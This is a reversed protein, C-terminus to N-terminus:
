QIVEFEKPGALRLGEWYSGEERRVRKISRDKLMSAFAQPSMAKRGNRLNWANWSEWLESSRSWESPSVAPGCCEAQWQALLDEHEVYEETESTVVSARVLGDRYWDGAARIIRALIGPYEGALKKLLDKDMKEPRHSFPLIQVRRSVGTDIGSFIPRNNAAMFFKAQPIFNFDSEYMYRANQQDGGTLSKLTAEDWRKGKEIESVSVMRKGVMAAIEQTHHQQETKLFLNRRATHYLDGFLASAVALYTSKGTGGGGYLYFFKHETTHGTITYGLARELYRVYEMDGGATEYLFTEWLPTPMGAPTIPTQLSIMLGPDSPQMKGTRLDVVGGPTALLDLHRNFDTARAAVVARASAVTMLDSMMKRSCIAKGAAVAAAKEKETAGQRIISDAIRACSEIALEKAGSNDPRWVGNRCRYWRNSDQDFRLIDGWDELYQSGM